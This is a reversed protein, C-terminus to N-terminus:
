EKTLWIVRGARDIFIVETFWDNGALRRRAEALAATEDIPSRALDLVIRHVGQEKARSFQNSITTKGAGEPSKFDWVQGNITVDPNKVGHTFDEVRWQVDVGARALREGTALEHARPFAGEPVTQTGRNSPRVDGLTRASVRDGAILPAPPRPPTPTTPTTPRGVPGRGDAFGLQERYSQRHRGTDRIFDRMDAQATRVDQAARRRDTDTMASAERRKASRIERELARQRAREKEAAEDYTTDGQPVTLGPSYAVLRCRCNPHGWGAARAEEVTGAVDVTVSESRTAHPLVVPGAPTGDTSLIKGAWAACKRCSDLGRVVTVLHIGSQGMRWIGADNYVRNVTTRGAMEAYAGITWRRNVKDVFGTIGESLFRQVAAAQQVRSTSVGLLTDPSYLAVIRQYADQPYRTLRQNLVELRSELSLAVMAVAQSSTGPLASLPPTGAFRLSAAAAAEGEEAAIRILRHALDEARLDSVMQLAITQLERLAVARHAALEALVRNRARREAATMGMGGPADPLLSALQFDRVARKAVEQILLDEADRYRQALYRSLDEILEEVSEREPNPVFLAM